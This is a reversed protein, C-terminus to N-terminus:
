EFPSHRNSIHRWDGLMRRRIENERILISPNKPMSIEMVPNGGVTTRTSVAFHNKLVAELRGGSILLGKDKHKKEPKARDKNYIAVGSLILGDELICSTVTLGKQKTIFYKLSSGRDKLVAKTKRNLDEYSLFMSSNPYKIIKNKM